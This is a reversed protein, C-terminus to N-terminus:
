FELGDASMSGIVKRKRSLHKVVSTRYAFMESITQAVRPARTLLERESIMDMYLSVREAVLIYIFILVALLILRNTVLEDILFM